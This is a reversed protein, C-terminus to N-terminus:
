KVLPVDSEGIIIGHGLHPFGDFSMLCREIISQGPCASKMLVVKDPTVHISAAISNTAASLSHGYDYVFSCTFAKFNFGDNHLM